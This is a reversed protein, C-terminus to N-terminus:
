WPECGWKQVFKIRDERVWEALQVSMPHGSPADPQGVQVGSILGIAGFRRVQMEVDDDAYWWRFQEDFRVGIRLDLLFYEPPIRYQVRRPLTRDLVHTGMGWHDPGCMALGHTVAGQVLVPLTTADCRTDSGTIFVYRAGDDTKLIHDIGANLWKSYSFEPGIHVLHVGPVDEQRVPDPDTTVVCVQGSPHRLDDLFRVLEVTRRGPCPVLAWDAM